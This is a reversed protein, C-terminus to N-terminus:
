NTRLTCNTDLLAVHGGWFEGNQVCRECSHYGPHGIIKKLYSQMPSDCIFPEITVPLVGFKTCLGSNKLVM